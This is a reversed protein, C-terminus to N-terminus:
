RSKTGRQRINRFGSNPWSNPAVDASPVALSRNPTTSAAITPLLKEWLVLMVTLAVGGVLLLVVGSAFTMSSGLVAVLGFVVFWVPIIATRSFLMSM